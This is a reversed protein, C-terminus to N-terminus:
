KASATGPATAIAQSPPEDEGGRIQLVQVVINYSTGSTLGSLTGTWAGTTQNVTVPFHKITGGNTGALWVSASGFKALKFNTDATATGSVLIQGTATGTQPFNATWVNTAAFAGHAFFALGALALLFRRIRSM